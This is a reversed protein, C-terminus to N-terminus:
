TLSFATKRVPLVAAGSFPKASELDVVYRKGWCVRVRVRVRVCTCVCMHVCVCVCVCLSLSQQLVKIQRLVSLHVVETM